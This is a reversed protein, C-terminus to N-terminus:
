WHLLGAKGDGAEGDDDISAVGSTHREGARTRLAVMGCFGLASGVRKESDSDRAWKVRREDGAGGSGSLWGKRIKLFPVLFREMGRSGIAKMSVKLSGEELPM